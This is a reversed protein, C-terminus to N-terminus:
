VSTIMKKENLQIKAKLVAEERGWPIIQARRGGMGSM